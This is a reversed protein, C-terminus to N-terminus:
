VEFNSIHISANSQHLPEWSDFACHRIFRIFGYSIYLYYINWDSDYNFNM